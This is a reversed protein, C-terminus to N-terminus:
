KERLEQAFNYIEKNIDGPNDQYFEVINFEDDSPYKNRETNYKSKSVSDGNILFEIGSDNSFTDSKILSTGNFSYFTTEFDRTGSVLYVGNSYNCDIYCGAGGDVYRSNTAEITGVKKASGNITSYVDIYYKEDEGYCIMLEEIDDNSLDKCTCYVVGNVFFNVDEDFKATGYMGDDQEEIGDIIDAYGQYDTSYKTNTKSFSKTTLNESESTVLKINKTNNATIIVFSSPNFIGNNLNELEEIVNSSYSLLKYKRDNKGYTKQAIELAKQATKGKNMETFIARSMSEAYQASTINTTGIVAKAGKSILINALYDDKASCCASILIISGDLDGPELIEDFYDGTVLLDGDDSWGLM